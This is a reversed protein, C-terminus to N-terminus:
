NVSCLIRHERGLIADCPPAKVLPLATYTVCPAIGAASGAPMGPVRIQTLLDCCGLPVGPAVAHLDSRLAASARVLLTTHSHRRLFLGRPLTSTASTAKGRRRDVKM